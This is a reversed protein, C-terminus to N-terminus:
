AAQAEKLGMVEALLEYSRRRAEFDHTVTVTMIEDVGYRAALEVLGDRVQEPDGVIVRTDERLLQEPSVGWAQFEEEAQEPSPIGRDVRRMIRMRWLHLSLALREAEQRSEACLVGVGVNARPEAAAGSPQFRERYGRVSASGDVGSIFQAFSYGVGLRAAVEATSGGSGLMWMEPLDTGRPTARVRALPHDDALSEGIWGMLDEIQAPFREVPIPERGYRLAAAAEGTGAPARGVGLDIRGPFLTQLMRFQEAVKYPSYHPLMVGGSGVRIRETVSAVRPILVEPASGAFSNTSHHEALWYRSYGLRESLRALELTAQVAESATRGNPVPSQDVIGLELPRRSTM